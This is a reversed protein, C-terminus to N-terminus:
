ALPPVYANAALHEEEGPEYHGDAPWPALVLLLRSAADARVSHREGPSWLVLTGADCTVERGDATVTVAGSVVQLIANERVSHEGMTDGPRLDIIVSRCGRQSFLVRPERKGTADITPLHWRDV